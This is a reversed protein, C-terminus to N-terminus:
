NAQDLQGRDARQLRQRLRLMTFAAVLGGLTVGTGVAAIDKAGEPWPTVYELLLWAGIATLAAVMATTLFLTHGLESVIMHSGSGVRGMRPLTPDTPMRIAPTIEPHNDCFYRRIVNLARMYYRSQIHLDVARLYVLSAFILTPMGLVLALAALATTSVVRSVALAGLFGIVGTQITVAFRVRSEMVDHMTLRAQM